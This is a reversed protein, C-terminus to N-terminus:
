EGNGALLHKILKCQLILEECEFSWHIDCRHRKQQTYESCGPLTDHITINVGIWNTTM